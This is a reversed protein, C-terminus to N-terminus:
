KTRGLCMERLLLIAMEAVPLPSDTYAIEGGRIDRSLVACYFVWHGNREAQNWPTDNKTRCGNGCAHCLSPYIFTMASRHITGSPTPTETDCSIAVHSRMNLSPWSFIRRWAYPVFMSPSHSSTNAATFSVCSISPM